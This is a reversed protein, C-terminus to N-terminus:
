YLNWNEEINPFFDDWLLYHPTLQIGVPTKTDRQHKYWIAHRIEDPNKSPAEAIKYYRLAM